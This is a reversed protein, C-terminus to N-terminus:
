VAGPKPAWDKAPIRSTCGLERWRSIIQEKEEKSARGYAVMGQRLRVELIKAKLERDFRKEFQKELGKLTYGPVGLIAATSKFVLGGVGKGIGKGFGSMGEKQLGRYPHYALGTVGDLMNYTFGQTKNALPLYSIPIERFRTPPFFHPHVKAAVKVGSGLGTINDRRRVTDDHFIFSPANHFGNALQYFFAM